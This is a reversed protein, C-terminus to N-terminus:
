AARPPEQVITKEGGDWQIVVLAAGLQETEYGLLDLTSQWSARFRGSGQRDPTEPDTWRELPRMQYQM